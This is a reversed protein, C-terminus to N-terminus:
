ISGCIAIACAALAISAVLLVVVVFLGIGDVGGREQGHDLLWLARDVVAQNPPWTGLPGPTGWLEPRAPGMVGNPGPIGDVSRGPDVGRWDKTM